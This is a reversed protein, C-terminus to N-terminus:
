GRSQSQRCWRQWAERLVKVLNGAVRKGDCLPSEAVRRRLGARLEALRRLDSAWRVALEVYEDLDSAIWEDLGVNALHNASQRGAFTRGRCTVVPVGMWLADCTTAGGSYPLPDLGIDVRNYAASLEGRRGEGLLDIRKADAGQTVLRELIRRRAAEDALGFYKIVLRAGPVRRLVEAWVAAAQPSIKLPNNFSVFTVHGATAAPLPGVEL